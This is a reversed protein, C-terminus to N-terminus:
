GVDELLLLYLDLIARLQPRMSQLNVCYIQLDLRPPGTYKMIIICINLFCWMGEAGKFSKHPCLTIGKTSGEANSPRALWKQLLWHTCVFRLLMMPLQGGQPYEHSAPGSGNHWCSALEMRCCEDKCIHTPMCNHVTIHKRESHQFSDKSLLWYGM